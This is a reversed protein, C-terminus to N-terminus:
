IKKVLSALLNDIVKKQDQNLQSYYNKFREYQENEEDTLELSSNDKEMPVDFGMLWLYNVNYADGILVAKENSPCHSGNVYQSISAKGIGTKDSLDQQKIGKVALLTRFRNAIEPYKM